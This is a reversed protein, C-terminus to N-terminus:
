GCIGRVTHHLIQIGLRLNEISLREDNGHVRGQDEPATFTPVFGYATIGRRRFVRSDTFGTSVGPVIVADEVLRRVEQSMVQYLETDMPSSPSASIFVEEIEIEEDDIVERLEAMFQDPDYGPILRVDLTAEASAPIVNHKVGANLTTLSISNMQVSKMRPNVAAIQALVADTPERELIGADRLQRFYERV